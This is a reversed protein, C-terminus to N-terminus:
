EKIYKSNLANNMVPDNFIQLTYKGNELYPLPPTGCYGMGAYTTDKGVVVMAGSYAILQTFQQYGTMSGNKLPGYNHQGLMVASLPTNSSNEVRVLLDGSITANNKTCAATILILCAIILKKM